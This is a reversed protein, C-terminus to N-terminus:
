FLLRPGIPPQSKYLLFGKNKVESIKADQYQLKVNQLNKRFDRKFNHMKAFGHGFQDKLAKWTIFQGDGDPIRHLRHTLWSYIDLCMSNNQLATIARKDHPVGNKIVSNFYADSLRVQFGKTSSKVDAYDMGKARGNTVITEVLFFNHLGHRDDNKWEFSFSATCLRELQVKLENMSRSSRSIRLKNTLDSLSNALQFDPRQQVIAQENIHYLLLRARTGFPIGRSVQQKTDPDIYRAGQIRMTLAGQTVEYLDNATNSYPLYVQCMSAHVYAIDNTGLATDRIAKMSESYRKAVLSEDNGFKLTSAM